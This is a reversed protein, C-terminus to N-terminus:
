LNFVVGGSECDSFICVKWDIKLELTDFDFCVDVEATALFTSGGLQLCPNDPNINVSAVEIGAIKLSIDLSDGNFKYCISVPERLTICGEPAGVISNLGNRRHSLIDKDHKKVPM